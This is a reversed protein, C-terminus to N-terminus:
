GGQITRLVVIEIFKINKYKDQAAFEVLEKYTQVRRGDALIIGQDFNLIDRGQELDCFDEAASGFYKIKLGPKDAIIIGGKL